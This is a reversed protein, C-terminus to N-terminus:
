VVVVKVCGIYVVKVCGIYYRSSQENQPSLKLRKQAILIAVLVDMRSGFFPPPMIRIILWDIVNSFIVPSNSFRSWRDV